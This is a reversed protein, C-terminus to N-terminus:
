LHGVKLSYKDTFSKVCLNCRFRKDRISDECHLKKHKILNCHQVFAVDCRLCEYPKVEEHMRVHDLFNCAKNFIKQCGDYKCHFSNSLKLSGKCSVITQEYKFPALLRNYMEDKALKLSKIMNERKFENRNIEKQNMKAIKVNSRLEEFLSDKKPLMGCSCFDKNLNLLQIRISTEESESLKKTISVPTTLNQRFCINQIVQNLEFSNSEKRSVKLEIKSNDRDHSEKLNL